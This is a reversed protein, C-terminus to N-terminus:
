TSNIEQECEDIASNVAKIDSAVAIGHSMLMRTVIGAVRLETLEASGVPHFIVPSGSSGPRVQTDIILQQDDNRMAALVGGQVLPMPRSFNFEANGGWGDVGSPYGLILVQQGLILGEAECPLPHEVTIRETLAIVAIDPEKWIRQRMTPVSKWEGQEWEFLLDVPGDADGVVHAATVLYQRRGRNLTFGTGYTSSGSQKVVSCLRVTRHIANSTIM